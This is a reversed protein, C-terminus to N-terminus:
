KLAVFGSVLLPSIPGTCRRSVPCLLSLSRCSDLFVSPIIRVIRSDGGGGLLISVYLTSDCPLCYMICNKYELTVAVTSLLSSWPWCRPTSYLLHEECFSFHIRIASRQPVLGSGLTGTGTCRSCHQPYLDRYIQMIGGIGPGCKSSM